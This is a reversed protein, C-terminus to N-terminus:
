ALTEENGKATENYKPGTRGKGGGLLPKKENELDLLSQRRQAPSPRVFPDLAVMWLGAFVSCAGYFYFSYDYDGTSDYIYGAIAPGFFAGIAITPTVLGIAATVKQPGVIDRIVQIQLSSIVGIAFGLLAFYVTYSAYTETFASVINFVGGLFISLAFMYISNGRRMLNPALRGFIGTLGLVSVLLSLQQPPALDLEEARAFGHPVAGFLGFGLGLMVAVSYVTFQKYRLFLVLDLREFLARIKSKGEGDITDEEYDRSSGATSKSADEATAPTKFLLACICMQLNMGAYVFLTPRWGYANILAQFLPPLLMGGIGSGVMILSNALVYRRKIYMAVIGISPSYILAYGLGVLVGFTINVVEITPAFTSIFVGASSILTGATVTARHGFRKTCLNAIPGCGFQFLFMLSLLWSTTASSANFDQQLAVFLPAIGQQLGLVFVNCVHSALVVM